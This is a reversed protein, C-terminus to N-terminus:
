LMLTRSPEFHTTAYEQLWDINLTSDTEFRSNTKEKAQEYALMFESDNESLWQDVQTLVHTSDRRCVEEFVADTILAITQQKHINNAHAYSECIGLMSATIFKSTQLTTPITGLEDKLPTFCNSLAIKLTRKCKGSNFGFM